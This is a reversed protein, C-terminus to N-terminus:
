APEIYAHLNGNRWERINGQVSLKGGANFTSRLESVLQEWEQDTLPRPLQVMHGVEIPLGLLKRKPKAPGASYVAAARAIQAPGLGVEAGISQIESLTLGSAAAPTRTENASESAALEFIERVEDEQYRRENM